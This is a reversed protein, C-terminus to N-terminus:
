KSTPHHIEVPASKASELDTEDVATVAVTLKNGVDMSTLEHRTVKVTALASWGLFGKKWVKYERIDKQPPKSWTLKVGGDGWAAALDAPADPLPKTTGSSPESWESELGDNDVAKIRYFRTAGDPLKAEESTLKDAATARVFERYAGDSATSSELAYEKIDTEPNAKWALTVSKPLGESAKLGKPQVPVPKTTAKAPPSWESRAQATNFALVRYTYETKDALAGLGSSGGWHSAKGRDLYETTERGNVTAIEQEDRSIAYGIVKEDASAAWSVPVERPRDTGAKVEKVVPPVDRTIATQVASDFGASGIENVARIKYLYTHHDELNGPDRRGDLFQLTNLGKITAIQEFEGKKLDARFIEYFVVNEEPSIAWSLPVCRVQNGEAKFEQVAAPVPLTKLTIPDSPNGQSDVRNISSIRYRYETFDNLPSDRTGGENFVTERTEGVEVFTDPDDPGAREIVYKVVGDSDSATWSLQAARSTPAEANIGTPPNPPPATTGAALATPASPQGDSSVAIIRYYYTTKDDLPQDGGRDTYTGRNPAVSGILDFEGGPTDTREINYRAPRDSPPNWTLVVERLGRDSATLGDAVAPAPTEDPVRPTSASVRSVPERAMRQVNWNQYLGAMMEHVLVRAHESLTIDSKEARKSLDVSWMVKGSACEILRCSIAAVPYTAGRYAVTSYEDVTGIVVGDAGLMQGIEAAKSASLGSAALEAEGLVKSMQGREVLEYRGARLMETVIMDSVSSGILETPAKFPMIAVKRIPCAVPAVFVNALSKTSRFYADQSNSSCGAAFLLATISLAILMGARIWHKM